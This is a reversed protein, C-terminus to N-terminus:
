HRFVRVKEGLIDVLISRYHQYIIHIALLLEIQGSQMLIIKARPPLQRTGIIELPVIHIGIHITKYMRSTPIM